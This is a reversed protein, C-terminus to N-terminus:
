KNILLTTHYNYRRYENSWRSLDSGDEIEIWFLDFGNEKIHKENPIAFDLITSYPHFTIDIPIESLFGNLWKASEAFDSDYRAKATAYDAWDQIENFDILFEITAKSPANAKLPIKEIRLPIGMFFSNSKYKWHYNEQKSDTYVKHAEDIRWKFVKPLRGIASQIKTVSDTKGKNKFVRLVSQTLDEAGHLNTTKIFYMFSQYESPFKLCACIDIEDLELISDWFSTKERQISIDYRILVGYKKAKDLDIMPTDLPAFQSNHYRISQAVEIKINEAVASVVCLVLLVVMFFKKKM